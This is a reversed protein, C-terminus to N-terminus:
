SSELSDFRDLIDRAMRVQLDKNMLFCFWGAEGFPTGSMQYLSIAEESGYRSLNVELLEYDAASKLARMRGRDRDPNYNQNFREENEKTM